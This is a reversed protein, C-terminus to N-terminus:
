KSGAAALLHYDCSEADDVKLDESIRGYGLTLNIKKTGFDTTGDTILHADSHRADV